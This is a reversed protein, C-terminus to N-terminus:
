KSDAAPPSTLAEPIKPRIKDLAEVNVKVDKAGRISEIYRGGMCLRHIEGKCCRYSQDKVEEFPM